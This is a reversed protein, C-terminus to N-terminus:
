LHESLVRVEETHQDIYDGLRKLAERRCHFPTGPDALLVCELLYVDEVLDTLTQDLETFKEYM